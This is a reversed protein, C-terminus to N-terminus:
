SCKGSQVCDRYAAALLVAFSNGEPSGTYVPNRDGWWLPNIAPGLIGNADVCTAITARGADAWKRYKSGFTKSDIVHMRYAVATLIATGSVEGFWTADTLYNRLLGNETLGVTMVADLIEKIERKLEAIESTWGKSIPAKMVTALVRTMGAAAWGNGTSWSGNDASQPGIIHTWLGDEKILVERYLRAQRVSEKLLTANNTAVAYYAMFPPAMYVFDAWLEAVDERHSIAGNPWRPATNLLYTIERASADMYAPDTQGILVAFAGLAASDGVAGDAPILVSSNLYIHQKAYALASVDAPPPSPVPFPSSGFVSIEPNDFELLAEAATGYEWSHTALAVAQQKVKEVDYGYNIPKSGYTLANVSLASVLVLPLSIVSFM